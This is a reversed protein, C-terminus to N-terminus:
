QREERQRRQEEKHERKGRKYREKAVEARIVRKKKFAELKKNGAEDGVLDCSELLSFMVESIGTRVKEDCSIVYCRPKMNLDGIIGTNILEQVRELRKTSDIKDIKNFIIDFRIGLDTLNQIILEDYANLGVEADLILYVNQLNQRNQLYQFILEGQWQRGKVGYGPTDVLRFRGGINYFNLCPTYGAEQKVRAYSEVKKQKKKSLLTNILSSKGVNCRGLFMVEPLKVASEELELLKDYDYISWQLNIQALTLFSAIKTYEKNNVKWKLPVPTLKALEKMIRPGDNYDHLIKSTSISVGKTQPQQNKSKPSVTTTPESNKLLQAIKETNIQSTIRNKRDLKTSLFRRVICIQISYRNYRSFMNLEQTKRLIHLLYITGNSTLSCM